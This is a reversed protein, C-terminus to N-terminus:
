IIDLTLCPHKRLRESGILKINILEIKRQLESRIAVVGEYEVYLSDVGFSSIKPKVLVIFVSNEVAVCKGYCEQLSCTKAQRQIGYLGAGPCRTRDRAM